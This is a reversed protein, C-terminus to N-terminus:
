IPYIYFTKGKYDVEFEDNFSSLWYSLGFEKIAEKVVCDIKVLKSLISNAVKYDQINQIAKIEKETWFGLKQNLCDSILWVPLKDLQNLIIRKAEKKREYELYVTYLPETKDVYQFWDHNKDYNIKSVDCELFKALARQKEIITRSM